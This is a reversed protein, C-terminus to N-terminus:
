SVRPSDLLRPSVGTPTDSSVMCCGVLFVVTGVAAAPLLGAMYFGLWAFYLAVEEGFYGRVHELPQQQEAQALSGLVPVPAAQARPGRGAPGGPDAQVPRRAPPLRRQLGRGGAAPRDRDGREERPWVPDQGPHRVPDPAQRHQQLLHGPQRERPVQVAQQGQVRLHLVRAARRARGGAPPSALRALLRASWHSAQNPLEQLPLKLHLDEAHYCLVAWPGSLLVYHVASSANRVHCQDVHLGAARLNELFTDRWAAHTAAKDRPASDPPRGLRLDEEWVLVFDIQPESPSGVRGAAEQGGSRRVRSPSRLACGRPAPAALGAGRCGGAAGVTPLPPAGLASPSIYGQLKGEGPGESGTGPATQVDGPGALQPSGPAEGKKDSPCSSPVPPRVGHGPAPLGCAPPGDPGKGQLGRLQPSDANKAGPAVDMLITSDEEPVQRRLM